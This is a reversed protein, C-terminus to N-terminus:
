LSKGAKYEVRPSSVLVHGYVLLSLLTSYGTTVAITIYADLKRALEGAEKKLTFMKKRIRRNRAVIRTTLLIRGSNAYKDAM